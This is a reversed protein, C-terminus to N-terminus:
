TTPHTPLSFTRAHKTQATTGNAAVGLYNGQITNNDCGNLCIAADSRFNGIALGRVTSGGAKIVLGNGTGVAQDM